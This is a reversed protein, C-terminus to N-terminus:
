TIKTLTVNMWPRWTRDDESQEHVAEITQGDDSVTATCRHFNVGMVGKGHWSWVNGNETIEEFGVSGHDDFFPGFYLGRAPDYGIIETAHIKDSGVTSDAYHVLSYEGALWEYVDTADIKTGTGVVEGLTHWRGVFVNLLANKSKQIAISDENM